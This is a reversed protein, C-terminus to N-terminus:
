RGPPLFTFGGLEGTPLIVMRLRQTGKSFEIDLEAVVAGTAAVEHHTITVGGADGADRTRRTWNVELQEATVKAKMPQALRARVQAIRGALLAQVTELADDRWDPWPQPSGVQRPDGGDLAVRVVDKLFTPHVPSGGYNVLLAVARGRRPAVAVCASFGGTGGSHEIVGDARVVWALAQEVDGGIRVMPTQALKIAQGLENAPPVLCASAYRAIDGITAEVGGAGWPHTWHSVEGRDSYGTLLTGSGSSGVGSCTMGLPELLEERVLTPFDRGSARELILALLQYGLNSYQHSNGPRVAARQLDREAHEFTYGAWPDAPNSRGASRSPGVAPLGSTHTALQQITLGANPGASLWRGIEDSLQLRGRRALVALLAATITKTVSGIEFRSCPDIGSPTVVIASDKEDAAAAAVVVGEHEFKSRLADALANAENETWAMVTKLSLWFGRGDGERRVRLGWTM